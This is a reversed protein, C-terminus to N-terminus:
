LRIIENLIDHVNKLICLYKGKRRIYKIEDRNNPRQTTKFGYM